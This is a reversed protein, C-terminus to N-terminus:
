STSRTVEGRAFFVAALSGSIVILAIHAWFYRWPAQYFPIEWIGLFIPLAALATGLSGGVILATSQYPVRVSVAATVLVIVLQAALISLTAYWIAYPPTWLFLSPVVANLRILGIATLTVSLVLTLVLRLGIKAALLRTLPIPKSFLFEETEEDREGVHADMGLIMHILIMAVGWGLIALPLTTFWDTYYSSIESGIPEIPMLSITVLYFAALVLFRTRIARWEKWFIM